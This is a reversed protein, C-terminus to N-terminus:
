RSSAARAGQRRALASLPPKFCAATAAAASGVLEIRKLVPITSGRRERVKLSIFKLEDALTTSINHPVSSDRSNM